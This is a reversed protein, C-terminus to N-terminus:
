WGAGTQARDVDDWRLRQRAIDLREPNLGGVAQMVQALTSALQAAHTRRVPCPMDRVTDNDVDLTYALLRRGEPDVLLAAVITAQQYVDLLQPTMADWDESNAHALALAASRVDLPLARFIAPDSSPVDSALFTQRTPHQLIQGM